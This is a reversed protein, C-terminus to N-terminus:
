KTGLFYLWVRQFIEKFNMYSLILTTLYVTLFNLEPSKLIIRSTIKIYIISRLHEDRIQDHNMYVNQFFNINIQFLYLTMKVLLGSKFQELLLKPDGTILKLTVLLYQTTSPAHQLVIVNDADVM